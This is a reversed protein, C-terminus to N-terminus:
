MSQIKTEEYETYKSYYVPCNHEQHFFGDVGYSLIKERVWENGTIHPANWEIWKGIICWNPIEITM